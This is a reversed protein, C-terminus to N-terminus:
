HTVIVVIFNLIPRAADPKARRRLTPMTPHAWFSSEMGFLRAPNRGGVPGTTGSSNGGTSVAEVSGIWSMGGDVDSRALVERLGGPSGSGSGRGAGCDVGRGGVGGGAGSGGLFTAAGSYAFFTGPFGPQILLGYSLLIKSAVPIGGPVSTFSGVDPLIM